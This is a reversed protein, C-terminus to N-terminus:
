QYLSTLLDHADPIPGESSVIQALKPDQMVEALPRPAGDVFATGSVLRIGHSYDAYEAGHVTSLPQIPKGNGRQWGYIAVKGPHTRLRLSFVVDKKEGATLDAAPDTFAALQKEVTQNHRLLYATSRMEDGAPMPSAVLQVKAQAYIADVMKPTPLFFGFRDAIEAATPLGLPIRVFDNDSGISLYDPLVCLTVQVVQGDPQNGTFTVPSLNRLFAPMNGALVQEKVATDRANGSLGMVDQMIASGDPASATRAPISAALRSNCAADPANSAFTALSSALVIGCAAAWVPAFKKM